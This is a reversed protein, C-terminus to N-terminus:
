FDDGSLKRLNYREVFVVLGSVFVKRSKVILKDVDVKVFFKGDDVVSDGKKGWFFVSRFYVQYDEGNGLDKDDM